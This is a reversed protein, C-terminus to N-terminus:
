LCHIGCDLQALFSMRTVDLFPSLFDHSRDCYRTSRGRSFPLSVLKAPESSCIGFYYRYFVSFSAVIRRHAFPELSAALSPGVTRCVWKELM